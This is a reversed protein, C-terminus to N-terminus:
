PYQVMWMSKQALRQLGWMAEYLCKANVGNPHFCGFIISGGQVAYCCLDAAQYKWGFRRSTQVQHSVCNAAGSEPLAGLGQLLWLFNTGFLVDCVEKFVIKHSWRCWHMMDDWSRMCYHHIKGLCGLSFNHKWFEKWSKQPQIKEWTRIVLLSIVPNEGIRLPFFFRLQFRTSKLSSIGWVDSNDFFIQWISLQKTWLSEWLPTVYILCPLVIKQAVGLTWSAM